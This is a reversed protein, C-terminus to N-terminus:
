KYGRSLFAKASYGGYTRRVDSTMNWIWNCSFLLQTSQEVLEVCGGGVQEVVFAAPLDRRGLPRPLLAAAQLGRDM